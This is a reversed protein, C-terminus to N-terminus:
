VSAKALQRLERSDLTVLGEDALKRLVWTSRAVRLSMVEAPFARELKELSESDATELVTWMAQRTADIGLQDRNKWELILREHLERASDNIASTLRKLNSM